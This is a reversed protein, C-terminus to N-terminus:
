VSVEMTHGIAYSMIKEQSFENHQLEGTIRGECMVLIRDAIALLEHLESSIVIVSVGKETLDSLLEYIESKAGVDIGRTPEDLILIKPDTALWRAIVAKQQNGGSLRRVTQYIDTTRINLKQVYEEALRKERRIDRFGSKNRFIRSISINPWLAMRLFLAQEKRDEPAFGMGYRIAKHPHNIHVQKGDLFIEGREVKDIGFIARATESRGSGMLGAIGLIEGRHLTFSIDRVAHNSLRRVELVPENNLGHERHYNIVDKRGVMMEIIKQVEIEERSLTGIYRGDRFVTVRDAIRTIEDMKHSIYVIGIKREKLLTVRQLLLDTESETLASTPEDLILLKPTQSLVKAIEVLQRQAVTLTRVPAHVDLQIHLEKLLQAADSNLRKWDIKGLAGTPEKGLYINEAVSLHPALMLEQHVIEIGLVRADAPTRIVVKKGELWIEGEDAHVSGTLINMLTSKGAGNEGVLVHVEGSSLSFDVNMLAPVGNFRKTIQRMFLLQDSQM